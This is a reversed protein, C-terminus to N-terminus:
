CNSRKHGASYISYNTYHACFRFFERIELKKSAIFEVRQKVTLKWRASFLKM